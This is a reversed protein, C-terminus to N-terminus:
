GYLKTKVSGKDSNKKSINMSARASPTMGFNQEIRTLEKALQQYIAVQPFQQMYRLRPKEGRAIEEPTQEYYIHVCLGHEDIYHKADEWKVYLDCYRSLARVDIETLLNLKQLRQAVSDWVIKARPSLDEPATCDEVLEPRPENKNTTSPTATGHLIRLETPKKPPGRHGM